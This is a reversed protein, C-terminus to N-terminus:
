SLVSRISPDSVSVVSFYDALKIVRVSGVLWYFLLPFSVLTWGTDCVLPCFFPLLAVTM